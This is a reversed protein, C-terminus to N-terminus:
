ERPRGDRHREVSEHAARLEELRRLDTAPVGPLPLTTGDTLTAEVSTTGSGSTSPRLEAVTSWPLRRTRLQTVDIGGSDATTGSRAIWLFGLGAIVNCVAGVQTGWHIDEIFFTVLLLVVTFPLWLRAFLRWGRGQQHWVSRQGLDERM